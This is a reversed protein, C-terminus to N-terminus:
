RQKNDEDNCQRNHKTQEAKDKDTNKEKDKSTKTKSKNTKIRSKNTKIETNTETQKITKTEKRLQVVPM